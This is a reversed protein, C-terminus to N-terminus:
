IDTQENQVEKMRKLAIDLEKKPTKQTKKIFSHLIIIVKGKKYCFFSRGIGEKAKARIEFLGSKVLKTYPTGLNPGLKIMMDMIDILKAQIKVPFDYIEKEVKNNYFEIKWDM